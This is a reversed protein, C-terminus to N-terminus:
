RPRATARADIWAAVDGIVQAKEPEHVLDHVLGPYVKLTKDESGARAYLDRSGQPDTVEDAGGHLILLPVRVEGMREQITGIAGLLEKATKAPAGDQYVLPDSKGAAVVQPDRSFKDPDLNFVGASPDFLAVLKTGAVKVWSVNVDLAAGSTVLGALTPSRTIVWLTVIAGGMSHGFLFLPQKPERAQVRAVVADLDLLYDDFSDIGVRVGSSHGHGRLDFAYVAIGEGVLREALEGYRSSHDKLGHVVVLAGRVPADKPRWWQEFLRAGRVDVFDFGHDVSASAVPPPPASRAELYPPGSCGVLALALVMAGLARALPAKM